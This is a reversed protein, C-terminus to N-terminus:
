EYIKEVIGLVKYAIGLVLVAGILMLLYPLYLILITGILVSIIINLVFGLKKYYPFINKYIGKNFINLIGWYIIYGIVIFLMNKLNHPFYIKNIFYHLIGFIFTEFVLMFKYLANGAASPEIMRKIKSDRKFKYENKRPYIFGIYYSVMLFAALIFNGFFSLIFTYPDLEPLWIQDFVMTLIGTLTLCIFLLVLAKFIGKITKVFLNATGNRKQLKNGM